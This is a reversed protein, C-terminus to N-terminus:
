FQFKQVKKNRFNFLPSANGGQVGWHSRGQIKSHRPLKETSEIKVKAAKEQIYTKLGVRGTWPKKRRKADRLNYLSMKPTKRNLDSNKATPELIIGNEKRAISQM